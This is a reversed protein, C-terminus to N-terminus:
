YFRVCVRVRFCVCGHLLSLCLCMRKEICVSQGGFWQVMLFFWQVMFFDRIVMKLKKLRFINLLLRLIEGESFGSFLSQHYRGEGFCSAYIVVM